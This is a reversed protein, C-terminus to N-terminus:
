PSSSVAKAAARLAHSTLVFREEHELHDLLSALVARLGDPFRRVISLGEHIARHEEVHEDVMNAIAADSTTTSTAAARL